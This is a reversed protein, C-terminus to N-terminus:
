GGVQVGNLLPTVAGVTKLLHRPTDGKVPALQSATTSLDQALDGTGGNLLPAQQFVQDIGGNLSTATPAPATAASAPSAAGLVAVTGAILAAVRTYKM